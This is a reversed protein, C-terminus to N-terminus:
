LLVANVIGDQGPRSTVKAKGKETMIITGKTIINMRVFNKNAKNETVSTIKAKVAKGDKGILNAFEAKLLKQKINGSKGRVIRKRTKGINTNSPLNGSEFLRKKRASHYRGGSPKRKSRHQTIAM